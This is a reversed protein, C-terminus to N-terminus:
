PGRLATYKKIWLLKSDRKWSWKDDRDFLRWQVWFGLCHERVAHLHCQNQCCRSFRRFSSRSVCVWPDSKLPSLNWPYTESRLSWVGPSWCQMEWGQTMVERSSRTHGTVLTGTVALWKPIAGLCFWLFGEQAVQEFWQCVVESPKQLSVCM